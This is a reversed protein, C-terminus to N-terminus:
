KAAIAPKRLVFYINQPYDGFVKEAVVEFGALHLAHNVDDLRLKKTAPFLGFVSLTSFVLRIRWNVDAFCWIKIILRGGPPLHAHIQALAAPMDDVLHLVNIACVVDCPGTELAQIVDSVVFRVNGGAPKAQAIRIMASSFDCATWQTVCPALHIATGGTGCGLELVRDDPHLRGAIDTLMAEYAAVNKLPRAAYRAAIRNWFKQQKTVDTM